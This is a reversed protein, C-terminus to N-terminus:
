AVVDIRNRASAPDPAESRQQRSAQQMRQLTAQAMVLQSQYTAIERPDAGPQQSMQTIRQELQQLQRRLTRVKGQVDNTPVANGAKVSSVTTM